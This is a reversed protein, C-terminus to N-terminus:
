KRKEITYWFTIVDYIKYIKLTLKPKEDKISLAQKEIFAL